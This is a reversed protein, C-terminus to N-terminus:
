YLRPFRPAFLTKGLDIPTAADLADLLSKTTAIKYRNADAWGKLAAWFATSGMEQRATDLM